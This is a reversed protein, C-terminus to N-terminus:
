EMIRQSSSLVNCPLTAYASPDRTLRDDRRGVPVGDFFAPRDGLREPEKELIRICDCSFV